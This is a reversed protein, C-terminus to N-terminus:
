RHGDEGGGGRGEGGVAFWVSCCLRCCCCCCCCCCCGAGGRGWAFGTNSNGMMDRLGIRSLHLRRRGTATNKTRCNKVTVHLLWSAISTNSEPGRLKPMCALFLLVRFGSVFGNAFRCRMACTVRTPQKVDVGFTSDAFVTIRQMACSGGGERSCTGSNPEPPPPSMNMRLTTPPTPPM